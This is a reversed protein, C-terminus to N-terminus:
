WIDEGVPTGRWRFHVPDLNISDLYEEIVQAMTDPRLRPQSIVVQNIWKTFLSEVLNLWAGHAPSFIFEFRNPTALLYARIDTAVRTPAPNVIVEILHNAPLKKDLLKLWEIFEAETHQPRVIGWVQATELHIGALLMLPGSLPHALHLIPIAPNEPHRGEYFPGHQMYPNDAMIKSITGPSIHSVSQHGLSRANNRIHHALLRETWSSETYGLDQPNQFTLSVIWSRAEPTIRSPRGPRPVDDLASRPGFALARDVCRRVKSLTLQYEKAIETLPRGEAYALLVLAREIRRPDESPATAVKRLYEHDAETLRLPVLNRRIPMSEIIGEM